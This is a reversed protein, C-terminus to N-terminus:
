APADARAAGACALNALDRRVRSRRREFDARAELVLPDRAAAVHRDAYDDIVATGRRDDRSKSSVVRTLWQEEIRLTALILPEPETIGLTRAAFRFARVLRERADAGDDGAELRDLGRQLSRAAILSLGFAYAEIGRRRAEETLFNGGLGPIQAESYRSAGDRAADVLRARAAELLGSLELRFVGPTLVTRRARNRAFQNREQRELGYANHLLSWGPRIENLTRDLGEPFESPKSILSFPFAVKQPSTDTGTAILSYPADRFNAPLKVNCGLGFFVGEGPWIEQDPARGTHNSGVNAGYGINGRGEPWWAAIVLAHHLATTFPGLLSDNVECEGLRVNPAILSGKVIAQDGVQVAEILLSDRVVSQDAVRCGPGILAGRLVAGDGAFVPAHSDGWITSSRITGAGDIEVNAGIWADEVVPTARITTGPGVYAFTSEIGQAWAGSASRLAQEFEASREGGADPGTARVAWEFPLEAVARLSRSYLPENFLELDNGFRSSAGTMALRGVGELVAGQGVFVREVRGCRSVCADEGIRCDRLLSHYLGPRDAPAGPEGPAGSGFPSLEVRGEFRCGVIWEPDFTEPVRLETGPVMSNGLAELRRIEDPTPARRAVASFDREALAREAVLPSALSWRKLTEHDM